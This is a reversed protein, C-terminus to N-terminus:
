WLRISDTKVNENMHQNPPKFTFLLFTRFLTTFTHLLTTPSLCSCKLIFTTYYPLSPYNHIVVAMDKSFIILKKWRTSLKVYQFWICDMANRLLYLQEFTLVTHTHTHTHTYISSRQFDLPNCETLAQPHLASYAHKTPPVTFGHSLHGSVPLLLLFPKLFAPWASNTTYLCSQYCTGGTKHFRGNQATQWVLAFAIFM